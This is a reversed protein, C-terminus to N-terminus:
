EWRIADIPDKRSAAVAPAVGFVIGVGVCVGFGLTVAWPSIVPRLPLWLPTLQCLLTALAIGLGGGLVSLAVAETLFQLFIDRRRAGVTKRIGIERTRETVTVLMINMIGIGGVVLSISTIGILLAALLHFVKYFLSLLEKSRLVSFDDRGGHNRLLAQRIREVVADPDAGPAIDVFIRHIPPRGVRSELHALPVYALADLEDGGFVGSGISREGIVGVIRYTQDNITLPQGVADDQPFLDNKLGTGIVCVPQRENDAGFFRGRSFTLKRVSAFVPNVAVPICMAAPKEGRFVGGGMFVLPSAGRVGPQQLIADVDASTLNSLGMGGLPNFNREGQMKGPIVIAVNTGLTDIQGTIERQAGEGFAVLLIVAGVGIVVGLMTLSTRLWNRVLSELAAVLNLVPAPGRSRGEVGPAPRSTRGPRDDQGRSDV